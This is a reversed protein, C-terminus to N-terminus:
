WSEVLIILKIYKKILIDRVSIYLFLCQGVHMGTIVIVHVHIHVYLLFGSAWNKDGCLCHKEFDNVLRKVWSPFISLWTLKICTLVHFHFSKKEYMFKLFYIYIQYEQYYNTFIYVM